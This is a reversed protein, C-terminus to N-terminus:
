QETERRLAQRLLRNMDAIGARAISEVIDDEHDRSLKRYADLEVDGVCGNLADDIALQPRLSKM